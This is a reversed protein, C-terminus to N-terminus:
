RNMDWEQPEFAPDFPLDYRMVSGRLVARAADSATKHPNAPPLLEAILRGRSTIAVREGKRVRRLWPRLNRRLETVPVQPM